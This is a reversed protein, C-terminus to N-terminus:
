AVPALVSRHLDVAIAGGMIDLLVRAREQDGLRVVTGLVDTFPGTVIRVPQGPQLKRDLRVLDSEDLTAVLAEVVGEPVPTPRGDTMYIASVGITSRVSLWPDASLDLQVFLYRPFLPARVTRLKRAHRVTKSYRPLYTDFAQLRLHFQARSECHPHTHVLYWRCGSKLEYLSLRSSSSDSPSINECLNM